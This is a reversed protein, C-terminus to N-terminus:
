EGAICFIRAVTGKLYQPPTVGPAFTWGCRWDAPPSSTPGGEWSGTGPGNITLIATSAGLDPDREIVCSGTIPMDAPKKCRAVVENAPSHTDGGREIVWYGPHGPGGGRQSYLGGGPAGPLGQQGPEGKDGKDGKPGQQGPDGKDGKDGKPGPPGQTDTCGLALALFFPYTTRRRM